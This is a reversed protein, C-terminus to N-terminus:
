YFELVDDMEVGIDEIEFGNSETIEGDTVKYREDIRINCNIGIQWSDVKEDQGGKVPIAESMYDFFMDTVRSKIIMSRCNMRLYVYLFSSLREVDSQKKCEVKINVNTNIGDGWYYVNDGVNKNMPVSNMNPKTTQLASRSVTVIAYKEITEIDETGDLLVVSRTRVPDVKKMNPIEVYRYRKNRKLLNKIEKIFFPSLFGGINYPAEDIDGELDKDYNEQNLEEKLRINGM